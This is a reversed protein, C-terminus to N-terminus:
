MRQPIPRPVVPFITVNSGQLLSARLTELPMVNRHAPKESIRKLQEHAIALDASMNRAVSALTDLMAALQLTEKDSLPNQGKGQAYLCDAACELAEWVQVGKNLKLPYQTM